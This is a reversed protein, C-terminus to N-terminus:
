PKKSSSSREEIQLRQKEQESLIPVHLARRMADSVLARDYPEQTVPAGKPLKFQTGLVQPKGINQLYRDLTASAIWVAGPQGRAVAIMALLHAKLFDDPAQGHQFIFAAHYFDEGSQLVGTDLLEQTRARRRDDASGVRSWDIDTARRDAQDADFIATMEASTSRTITLTYSRGGDWPGVKKSMPNARVFDFPEFGEYAVRVHAADVVHVRFVDPRSHPAPDDFSLEVDGNILRISNTQRRVAPGMINSFTEGDTQFHQPRDWTAVAEGSTDVIEFRFITTGDAELDWVGAVGPTLTSAAAIVISLFGSM